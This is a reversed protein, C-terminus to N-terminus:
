GERLWTTVVYTGDMIVFLGWRDGVSDTWWRQVLTKGEEVARRQGGAVAWEVDTETLNREAMRDRAHQSYTYPM